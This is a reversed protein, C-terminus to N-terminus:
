PFVGVNFWRFALIKRSCLLCTWDMVMSVCSAVREPLFGTGKGDGVCNFVAHSATVLMISTLTVCVVVLPM